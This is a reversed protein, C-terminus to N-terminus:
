IHILSLYHDAHFHTLFWNKCWGSHSKGYGRFGDFRLFSRGRGDDDRYTGAAAWSRGGGGGHIRTGPVLNM